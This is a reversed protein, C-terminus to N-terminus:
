SQINAKLENFTAILENLKTQKDKIDAALKEKAGKSDKYVQTISTLDSKHRV